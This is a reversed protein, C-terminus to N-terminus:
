QLTELFSFMAPAILWKAPHQDLARSRGKKSQRFPLSAIRLSFFLQRGPAASLQLKDVALEIRADAM